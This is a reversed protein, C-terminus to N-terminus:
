RRSPKRPQPRAPAIRRVRVSYVSKRVEALSPPPGSGAKLRKRLLIAWFISNTALRNRAKLYELPVERGEPNFVRHATAAHEPKEDHQWMGATVRLRPGATPSFTWVGHAVQDRFDKLGQCVKRFRNLNFPQKRRHLALLNSIMTLYEPIRAARVVYRGEKLGLQVLETLASHLECELFACRQILHGIECALEDSISSVMDAIEVKHSGTMTAGTQKGGSASNCLTAWGYHWLRLVLAPRTSMLPLTFMSLLPRM